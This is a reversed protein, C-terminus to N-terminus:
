PRPLTRLTARSRNGGHASLEEALREFQFHMVYERLTDLGRMLDLWYRFVAQREEGRVHRKDELYLMHEFYNLLGDLEELLERDALQEVQDPPDKLRGELLPAVSRSYEYQLSQRARQFKQDTYFAQFLNHISRVGEVSRTQRYTYLAWGGGLLAAAALLTTGAGTWDNGSWDAPSAIAIAVFQSGALARM